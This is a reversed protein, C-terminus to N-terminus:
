NTIDRARWKSDVRHGGNSQRIEAWNSNQVLPAQGDLEFQYKTGKERM